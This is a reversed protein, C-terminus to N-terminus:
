KLSVSPTLDIMYKEYEKNYNKKLRAKQGPGFVDKTKTTTEEIIFSKAFGANEYIFLGMDFTRPYKMRIHVGEDNNDFSKCKNNLEMIERITVKLGTIQDKTDELLELKYKLLLAYNTLEIHTDKPSDDETVRLTKTM